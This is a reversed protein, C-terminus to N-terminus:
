DREGSPKQDGAESVLFWRKFISYCSLGYFAEIRESSKLFLSDTFFLPDKLFGFGREAAQQEKYKVIMEDPNLQSVELV